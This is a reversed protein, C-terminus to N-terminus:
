VSSPLLHFRWFPLWGFYGTTNKLFYTNCKNISRNYDTLCERQIADLFTGFISMCDWGSIVLIKIDFAPHFSLIYPLEGVYLILRFSMKGKWRRRFILKWFPREVDRNTPSINKSILYYGRVCSHHGYIGPFNPPNVLNLDIIICDHCHHQTSIASHNPTKLRHAIPSPWCPIPLNQHGLDFQTPYYAAYASLSVFLKEKSSLLGITM